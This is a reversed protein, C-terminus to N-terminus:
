PRKADLGLVSRVVERPVFSEEAWRRAQAGYEKCTPSDLLLTEISLALAEADGVPVVHGTELHRVSDRTGTSDAVISPVGMAAAELVVNPFGERRSPLVLMRMEAIQPRVDDVFGVYRVGYPKDRMLRLIERSDSEDAPGVILLQLPMRPALIECADLLTFIGKDETLRGVFGIVPDKERDSVDHRPYFETTDVGHSSGPVTWRIKPQSALKNVIYANGLSPSNAVVESAAMCTIKEFLWLIRRPWGASGELRLGGTAYLRNPVRVLRASLQGLLSAKPTMTVVIQPRTRLLLGIWRLLAFVDSLLAIQRKMPITVITAEPHQTRLNPVDASPACVLWVGYGESQLQRVYEPFFKELTVSVTAAVIATRSSPRRKPRGLNM